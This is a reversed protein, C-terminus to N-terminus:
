KLGAITMSTTSTTCPGCVEVSVAVLLSYSLYTLLLYAFCIVVVWGLTSTPALGTM